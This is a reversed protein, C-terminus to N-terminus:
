QGRYYSILPPNDTEDPTLYRKMLPLSRDEPAVYENDILIFQTDSLINAALGYLLRYFSHFIEENVEASINKMPTDVILFHPLPLARESAVQHIALAYCTNLLTKKGGSGANFFSWKLGDDGQPLIFPIWNRRDIEVKDGEKVGPLKIALLAHLLADEIEAIVQEATTLNKREEEMERRLRSQEAALLDVDKEQVAIAQPLKSIRELNSRREIFTAANAELERYKAMFASDYNTLEVTFKNDLRTKELRIADVRKQQRQRARYHRSISDEIESVRSNLDQRIAESQTVLDLTPPPPTHGCLRCKDTTIENDLASGCAPCAKFSVGTLISSATQARSLKFKTSIIEANLAKEESIRDDIDSLAQEETALQKVLTRLEERTTDASHTATNRNLQVTELESQVKVIQESVTKLQATIEDATGLGFESLFKKLQKISNIKASREDTTKQLEIDLDNLHQTYYGVVYRIVDRSKASRVPDDLRYFDSDIRDQRLYCYWMIDRFSLRVLPAEDDRKNKRVKPPTMGLLHFILDSLNFVNAGWVPTSEARIPALVSGMDGAANRWTVQVHNSATSTREFLVEYLGINANLEASVFEQQIAPTRELDGGLCFDIIRAISSKGSSVKGHFFNIRQSFEILERSQKCQLVLSRFKINM